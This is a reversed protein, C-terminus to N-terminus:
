KNIQKLNDYNRHTLYIHIRYSFENIGMLAFVMCLLETLFKKQMKGVEQHTRKWWMSKGKRGKILGASLLSVICPLDEGGHEMRIGEVSQHCQAEGQLSWGPWLIEQGSGWSEFM